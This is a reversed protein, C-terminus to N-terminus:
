AKATEAEILKTLEPIVSLDEITSPTQFSEGDTIKRMIKRLIKGSRTKPLKDAVILKKFSAVPGVKDRVMQIVEREINAADIEIGSKLVAFGIPVQGKLENKVGIVACEAIAPHAAVVEEMEATSLRHGAVNIVDDM